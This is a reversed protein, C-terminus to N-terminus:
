AERTDQGETSDQTGDFIQAPRSQLPLSLRLGFLDSLSVLVTGFRKREALYVYRYKSTVGGPHLIRYIIDVADLSLASGEATLDRKMRM